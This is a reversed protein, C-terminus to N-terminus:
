LLRCFSAPPRTHSRSSSRWSSTGDRGECRKGSCQHDLVPACAPPSDLPPFGPVSPVNGMKRYVALPWFPTLGTQGWMEVGGCKWEGVNGWMEERKRLAPVVVAYAVPKHLVCLLETPLIAVRGQLIRLSPAGKQTSPARVDDSLRAERRCNRCARIRFSFYFGRRTTSNRHSTRSHPSPRAVPTRLVCLSFV